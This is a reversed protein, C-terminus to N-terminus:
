PQAAPRSRIIPSEANSAVATRRAPMPSVWETATKTTSRKRDPTALANAMIKMVEITSPWAARAPLSATCDACKEPTPRPMAAEDNITMSTPSEPKPQRASQSTPAAIANPM